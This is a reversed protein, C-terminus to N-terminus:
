AGQRARAQAAQWCRNFWARLKSDAAVRTDTLMDQNDPEAIFDPWAMRLLITARCFVAYDRASQMGYREAHDTVQELMEIRRPPELLPWASDEVLLWDDIREILTARRHRQQGSFQTDSIELM